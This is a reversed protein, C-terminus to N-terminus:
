SFASGSLGATRNKKFELVAQEFEDLPKDSQAPAAGVSAKETVPRRQGGAPTGPTASTTGQVVNQTIPVEGKILAAQFRAMQMGADSDVYAPNMELVSRLEPNKAAEYAIELSEPNSIDLPDQGGREWSENLSLITETIQGDLDGEFTVEPHKEYFGMVATEAEQMTRQQEAQAQAQQTLTDLRTSLQQDVMQQIQQPTLNGAEGYWESGLQPEQPRPQQQNAQQIIPLAQQLSAELRQVYEARENERREAARRAQATKTQLAVIEKYGKEAEEMSKYKGFILQEVAEQEGTPVPEQPEQAQPEQAALGFEDKTEKVMPSADGDAPVQFQSEQAQPQEQPLFRGTEPDRPREPAQGEPEGVVIPNEETGITLFDFEDKNKLDPDQLGFQDRPM